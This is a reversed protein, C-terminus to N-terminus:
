QEVLNTAYCKTQNFMGNVGHLHEEATYGTYTGDEIRSLHMVGVAQWNLSVEDTFELSEWFFKLSYAAAQIDEYLSAAGHHLFRDVKDVLARASELTFPTLSEMLTSTPNDQEDLELALDIAKQSTFHLANRSSGYQAVNQENFGTFFGYKPNKVLFLAKYDESEESM